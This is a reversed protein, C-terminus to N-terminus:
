AAVSQSDRTHTTTCQSHGCPCANEAEELYGQQADRCAQSCWLEGKQADCTCGDHKCKSARVPEASADQPPKAPVFPSVPDSSPFTEELAQDLNESEKAKRMAREAPKEEPSQAPNPSLPPDKRDQPIM